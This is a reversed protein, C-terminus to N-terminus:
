GGCVLIRVGLSFEKKGCSAGTARCPAPQSLSSRISLPSCSTQSLLRSPCIAVPSMSILRSRERPVCLIVSVAVSMSPEEENSSVENTTTARVTILGSQLSLPTNSEISMALPVLLSSFPLRTGSSQSVAQPGSTLLLPATSTSSKSTTIPAQPAHAVGQGGDHTASRLADQPTSTSSRSTTM